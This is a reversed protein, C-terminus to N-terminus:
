KTLIIRVTLYVRVFLNDIPPAQMPPGLKSASAARVDRAVPM